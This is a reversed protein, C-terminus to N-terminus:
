FDVSLSFSIAQHLVVDRLVIKYVNIKDKRRAERKVHMGIRNVHSGCLGYM